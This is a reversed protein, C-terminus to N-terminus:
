GVTKRRMRAASSPWADEWGSGANGSRMASNRSYASRAARMPETETASRRLCAARNAAPAGPALRSRTANCPADSAAASRAAANEFSGKGGYRILAIIVDLSGLTPFIIIWSAVSLIMSVATSRTITSFFLAISSWAMVGLAILGLAGLFGLVDDASVGGPLL